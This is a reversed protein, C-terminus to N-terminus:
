WLQFIQKLDMTDKRIQFDILEDAIPVQTINEGKPFRFWGRKWGSSMEQKDNQGGELLREKSENVQESLRLIRVSSFGM